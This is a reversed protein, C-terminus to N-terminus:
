GGPIVRLTKGTLEFSLGAPQLIARLLEELTVEKVDFSVLRDLKDATRPDFEIQRGVQSAVASAVAQVSKNEIRLTYRTFRDTNRPTAPSRPGELLRKVAEHQQWTGTVQIRSAGARVQIGPIRTELTRALAAQDPRLSYSREITAQQPLPVLRIASGDPAYEFTLDFGALLLGMREAFTLPPLDVKPWLDHPISELDVVRIGVRETEQQILERPTSLMPWSLPFRRQLRGRVVAPLQATEDQKRLVVTALVAATGPPGVYVVDGVRCTDQQVRNAVAQILSGLPIAATSFEIKQDPDVRRDLFIAVQQDQALSKIADRLGIGAWGIGVGVRLQQELQDGTKWPISQGTADNPTAQLLWFCAFAIPAFWLKCIGRNARAGKIPLTLGTTMDLM